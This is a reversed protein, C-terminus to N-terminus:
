LHQPPNNAFIADVIGGMGIPMCGISHSRTAGKILSRRTAGIIKGGRLNQSAQSNSPGVSHLLFPMALCGLSSM